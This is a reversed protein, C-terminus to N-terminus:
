PNVAYFSFPVTRAPNPTDRLPRGPWLRNWSAVQRASNLRMGFIVGDAPARTPGYRSSPNSVGGIQNNFNIPYFLKNGESDFIPKGYLDTAQRVYSGDPGDIIVEGNDNRLFKGALQPYYPGAITPAANIGSGSSGNVIAGRTWQGLGIHRGLGAKAPGGQDRATVQTTVQTGRAYGVSTPNSRPM